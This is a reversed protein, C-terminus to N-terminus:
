VNWLLAKLDPRRRIGLFRLIDIVNAFSARAEGFGVDSIIVKYSPDFQVPCRGYREMTEDCYDKMLLALDQFRGMRIKM